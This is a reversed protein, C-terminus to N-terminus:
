VTYTKPLTFLVQYFFIWWDQIPDLRPKGQVGLGGPQLDKASGFDIQEGLQEAYACVRMPIAIQVLSKLCM